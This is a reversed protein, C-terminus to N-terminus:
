GPAGYLEHSVADADLHKIQSIMGDVIEIRVPKGDVYLLADVFPADSEPSCANLVIMVLLIYFSRLNKMKESILTLM